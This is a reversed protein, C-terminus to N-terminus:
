MISKRLVRIEKSLAGLQEESAQILYEWSTEQASFQQNVKDISM